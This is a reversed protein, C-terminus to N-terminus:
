SGTSVSRSPEDSPERQRRQGVHLVIREAAETEVKAQGKLPAAQMEPKPPVAAWLAAELGDAWGTWCLPTSYMATSSERPCVLGTEPADGNGSPRWVTLRCLFSTRALEGRM